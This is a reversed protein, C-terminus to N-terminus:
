REEGQRAAEDSQLDAIVTEGAVTTQYPSVLPAIGDPLYVDMRSGFRILGFVQGARVPEEAKLNCVIRRAVLGAIQVFGIDVGDYTTVKIAMRENDESAKDLAANIFKGPRYSLTTVIGDIPVRNIHVNFVNLFISVRTLPEDGLDLEPPPVARVIPHVLGDAPAIILGVRTPTV